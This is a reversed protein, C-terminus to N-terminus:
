TWKGVEFIQLINHSELYKVTREYPDASGDAKEARGFDSDAM